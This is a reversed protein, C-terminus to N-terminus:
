KDYELDVEVITRMGNVRGLAEAMVLCRAHKSDAPTWNWEDWAQDLEKIKDLLKNIDKRTSTEM